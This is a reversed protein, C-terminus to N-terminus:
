LEKRDNKIEQNQCKSNFIRENVSKSLDEADYLAKM